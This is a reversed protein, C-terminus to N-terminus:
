KIEIVLKDKELSLIKFTETKDGVTLLLNSGKLKWKGSQNQIPTSLSKTKFFEAVFENSSKFNIKGPQFNFYDQGVIVTYETLRYVITNKSSEKPSEFWTNVLNEKQFNSQSSLQESNLKLIETQSILKGTLLIFLIPLIINLRM